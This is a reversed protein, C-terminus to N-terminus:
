RRARPQKAAARERGPLSASDRRSLQLRSASLKVNLMDAFTTFVWTRQVPRVRRRMSASPTPNSALLKLLARADSAKQDPPEALWAARLADLQKKAAAPLSLADLEDRLAAWTRERYFMQSASAFVHDAVRQSIRGKALAARLGFRVNVLAVSLQRYAFEEPAHAVAVEDDRTLEGSRYAAEIKGVGVMGFAHLEAARLAGMSAAGFVAVGQELAYLIEKHWVAATREFTGDIIAFHTPRKRPPRAMMALIDGAIVPRAVEARPLAAEVEARPLTPGVFVVIRPTSM